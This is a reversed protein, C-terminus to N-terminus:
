TPPQKLIEAIERREEDTLISSKADIRRAEELYRRAASLDDLKDRACIRGLQLLARVRQRSGSATLRVCKEFDKRADAFRKLNMLIVGRTDRPERSEPALKVAKEALILAAPYDKRSTALIWALGNIARANNKNQELVQRYLKEAPDVKGTKFLHAALTLKAGEWKPALNVVRRYLKEAELLHEPSESIALVSAAAGLVIHDPKEASDAASALALLDKFRDQQGYLRMREILVERDNKGSAKAALDLWHQAQAYNRQKGHMRALVLLVPKSGGGSETKGFAELGAIAADVKGLTMLIRANVLYLDSDQPTREIAKAIWKRAQNLVVPNRSVMAASILVIRAGAANPNAELIGEALDAAAVYQGSSLQIRAKTLLLALNGPNSNLANRVMMLATGYEKAAIALKILALHGRVFTPELEVAQKLLSRAKRRADPNASQVLTLAARAWLFEAKRGLSADLDDLIKEAEVLDDKDKRQLLLALLSHKLVSDDAHAKLGRRLQKKAEDPRDTRLYFNALLQHSMSSGDIEALQRYDKEALDEEGISELFKARDFYALPTAAKEVRADLLKRASLRDKDALDKQGTSELFKARALYASPSGAKDVHADLLKGADQTNGHAVLMEVRMLLIRMNGPRIEEAKDLWALAGKLDRDRAYTVQALLIRVAVDRPNAAARLKLERHATALDNAGLAMRIRRAALLKPAANLKDLIEGAELRRNQKTLIAVLRDAVEVASRNRRLGDRCVEEALKPRGTREYIQALILVPMPWLPRQRIWKRLSIIIEQQNKRWSSDDALWMTAQHKQWLASHEGRVDRIRDLLSQATPRHRRIEPLSLLLAPAQVDRPNDGAVDKLLKVGASRDGYMLELMALDMTIVHRGPGATVAKIGQELTKRADDIKKDAQYHRALERWLSPSAAHNKRADLCLKVAQDIRGDAAHIAALQLRAELADPMEKVAQVLLQTAEDRRSQIIMLRAQLLPIETLRPYESRLAALKGGLAQLAKNRDAADPRSALHMAAEIRLLRAKPDEELLKEDREVVKLASKWDGLNGYQRAAMLRMRGDGPQMQLYRALTRTAQSARGIQSYAVGLLRLTGASTESGVSLPELLEIVEHPNGDAGAVSAQLIAAQEKDEGTVQLLKRLELYEGMRKKATKIRVAGLYTRIAQPLVVLRKRRETLKALVGDAQDAASATRGMRIRLEASQLFHQVLWEDGDIFEKRIAAADLQDAAKLAAAARDLKNHAMWERSIRLLIRPSDSKIREARDLDERSTKLMQSRMKDGFPPTQRYFEARSVLADASDPANKVALDLWELAKAPDRQDGSARRAISSLLICAQVYEDPKPSRNDLQKVLAVLAKDAEDIRGQAEQARALWIAAGINGPARELRRAAIYALESSDTVTGMHTYMAALQRYVEHDDPTLNLLERYAGIARRIDNRSLSAPKLLVEAYKGLIEADRPRRGLYEVFRKRAEDWDGRDYAANGAALDRSALYSRRVERAVFAGVGLVVITSVLIIVLKVNVKASVHQRRM